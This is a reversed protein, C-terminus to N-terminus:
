VERNGRWKLFFNKFSKGFDLDMKGNAGRRLFPLWTRPEGRWRVGYRTHLEDLFDLEWRKTKPQQRGFLKEMRNGVKRFVESRGGFEKEM